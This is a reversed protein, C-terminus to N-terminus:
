TGLPHEEKFPKSMNRTSTSSTTIQHQNHCLCFVRKNKQRTENTDLTAIVTEDLLKIIRSTASCNLGHSQLETTDDDLFIDRGCFCFRSLSHTVSRYPVNSSTDVGALRISDFRCELWDSSAVHCTTPPISCSTFSRGHNFISGTRGREEEISWPSSRAHGTGYVEDM